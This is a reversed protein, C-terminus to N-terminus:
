NSEENIGKLFSDRLAFKQIKGSATLPFEELFRVYKPIKFVAIKGKCFSIIEEETAKEGEKLEIFAAGVEGWREDPVGVV